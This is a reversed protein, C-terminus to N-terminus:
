RDTEFTDLVRAVTRRGVGCRRLAKAVVVDCANTTSGRRLSRRAGDAMEPFRAKTEALGDECLRSSLTELADTPSRHGADSLADM